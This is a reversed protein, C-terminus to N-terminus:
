AAERGHVACPHVEVTVHSLGALGDLREKYVGPAQPLSVGGSMIELRRAPGEFDRLLPHDRLNM